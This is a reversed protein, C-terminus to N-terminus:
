ALGLLQLGLGIVTLLILTGGAVRWWAHPVATDMLWLIAGIALVSLGFDFSDM